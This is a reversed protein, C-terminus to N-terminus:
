GDVGVIEVEPHLEIGREAKARAQALEMLALVEKASAGGDNVLFNGHELSIRAGGVSAGKLGLEDILKGAPIPTPNKFMCGASPAAPQSSWRKESGAKMKAEIAKREAPVGQFVAALAIRSKLTQCNRYTVTMEAPVLEQIEGSETMMRVSVVIRFTEGGMAGANMRLAGGVTGPIGALFELGSLGWRRAEVALQKLRVGAGARLCHGAQTIQAFVPSSLAVVIGRIGGDRVVLNSGRGIVLWNLRQESCFRLVAALDAEGAPEVYIDAPGGVRLTTHRAMPEDRRIITESSVCGSLQVSLDAIRNM